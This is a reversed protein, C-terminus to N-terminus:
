INDDIVKKLRSIYSPTTGCCGGIFKVNEKVMEFCNDVFEEKTEPYIIKGSSLQPIGANPKVWLPIDSLQTVKKVVKKMEESTLGCNIGLVGVKDAWKLLDEIKQGMLTRNEGGSTLAFSPIVFLSCKEKIINYAVKMETLDQFTELLIFDVGAKELLLAQSLFIDEAEKITLNGYPELLAGTPGIDGAVFVSKYKDRVEISIEVGKLNILELKDILNKLSLRSKNAGFTNTLIVSAGAEIYEKHISAILDPTDINACEPTIGSYGHMDLYTGMSGDTLIIKESFLLDKIDM